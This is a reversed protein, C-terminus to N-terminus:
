GILEAGSARLGPRLVRWGPGPDVMAGGETEFAILSPGAGSVAVPVGARVIEDFATRVLPLRQLRADQHLRDRLALVLLDPRWAIAVAGMAAHALNFVADSRPVLDPLGSRAEATALRVGQPILLVPRVDPHPDLRVVPGDPPAVTFGGYVAAAANDPHGELRRATDFLFAPDSAEPLELLTAALLAGAVVAASSSGLGRELPIANSSRLAVPPLARGSSEAVSAMAHSVMDTGDTPLEHEGEGVWTVGPPGDTDLTVENVLGLALGFCDFGPGLNASTAPVHVTLRM